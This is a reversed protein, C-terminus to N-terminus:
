LPDGILHRYIVYGVLVASSIGALFQIGNM